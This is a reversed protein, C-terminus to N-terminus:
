RKEGLLENSEADRSNSSGLRRSGNKRNQDYEKIRRLINYQIYDDIADPERGTYLGFEVRNLVTYYEIDIKGDRFIRIALRSGGSFTMSSIKVDWSDDESRFIKTIPIDKNEYWERILVELCDSLTGEFIEGYWM